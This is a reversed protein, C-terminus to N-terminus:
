GMDKKSFHSPYFNINLNMNGYKNGVDIIKLNKM